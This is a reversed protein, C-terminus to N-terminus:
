AADLYLEAADIWMATGTGVPAVEISIFVRDVDPPVTVREFVRMWEGMTWDPAYIVQSFLEATSSRWRLTVSAAQLGTVDSVYPTKFKGSFVLAQGPILGTKEFRANQGTAPNEIRATLRLVNGRIGAETRVAPGYALTQVANSGTILGTPYFSTEGAVWDFGPTISGNDTWTNTGAAVTAMFKFVSDGPGKRYIAWLSYTGSRTTTLTLGGPAALTHVEDDYQGANGYLNMTTVRYTYEGAPLTGTTETISSISATSTMASSLTVMLGNTLMGDGNFSINPLVSPSLMGDLYTLAFAGLNRRYENRPHIGDASWGAPWNGDAANGLEWFPIVPISFPAAWTVLARNYAAITSANTSKPYVGGIVLRAGIAACKVRYSEVSEMFTAVPVTAVDNTGITLCVVEPAYPAVYADFRGLAAAAGQGAVAANSVYEIRGLARWTLENVWTGARSQNPGSGPYTVSGITISDGDFVWKRGLLQDRSLEALQATFPDAPNALGDALDQSVDTFVVEGRANSKTPDVGLLGM